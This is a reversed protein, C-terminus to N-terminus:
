VEPGPSKCHARNRVDDRSCNSHTFETQNEFQRDTIEFKLFLAQHM